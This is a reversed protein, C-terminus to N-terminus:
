WLIRWLVKEFIVTAPECSNKTKLISNGYWKSEDLMLATKPIFYIIDTFPQLVTSLLNGQRLTVGKPLELYIDNGQILTDTIITDEQVIGNHWLLSKQTDGEWKIWVLYHNQTHCRGWYLGIFPLKWVPITIDICETYGWGKFSLDSLLISADAKPQTCHWSVEGQQTHLLTEKLDGTLSLWTGQIQGTNWILQNKTKWSPLPQKTMGSQTKIGM